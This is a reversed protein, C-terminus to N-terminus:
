HLPCNNLRFAQYFLDLNCFARHQIEMHDGVIQVYFNIPQFYTLFTILHKLTLSRSSLRCAVFQCMAFMSTKRQRGHQEALESISVVELSSHVELSLSTSSIFTCCAILILVLSVHCLHKCCCVFFLLLISSM